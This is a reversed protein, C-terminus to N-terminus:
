QKKYDNYSMKLHEVMGECARDYSDQDKIHELLFESAKRTGIQFLILVERESMSTKLKPFDKWFRINAEVYIDVEASFTGMEPVRKLMEVIIFSTYFVLFKDDLGFAEVLSKAEHNVGM